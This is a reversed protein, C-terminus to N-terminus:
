AGSGNEADRKPPDAGHGIGRREIFGIHTCREPERAPLAHPEDGLIALSIEIEGGADGDIRQAVGMGMEDGRQLVLGLLDPVQRVEVLDGALFAEAAPQRLRGEGVLHEEGIRAGLRQFARDLRGPAVVKGLTVGALVVDEGELASEVAAGDGGDRGAPLLFVDLAEAGLGRAEQLQGEAVNRGDPVRDGLLRRRDEDLGHLALPPKAGHRLVEHLLQAPEAVFVAQQEDEVLHLRADAAGAAEEGM